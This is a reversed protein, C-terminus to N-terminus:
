VICFFSSGNDIFDMWCVIWRFLVNIFFLKCVSVNFCRVVCLGIVNVFFNFLVGDSGGSFVMFFINVFWM